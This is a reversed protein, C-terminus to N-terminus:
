LRMGGFARQWALSQRLVELRQVDDPGCEPMLQGIISELLPVAFTGANAVIQSFYHIQIGAAKGSHFRRVGATDLAFVEQGAPVVGRPVGHVAKGDEGVVGLLLIGILIGQENLYDPSFSGLAPRPSLRPGFGSYEPNILKSDYIIGIATEQGMPIGVFQGFGHDAPKPAENADLEDIVRATYDIHSMSSVIKAIKM